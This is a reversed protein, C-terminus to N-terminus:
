TAHSDLGITVPGDNILHVKMEAGFRGAEVVLGHEALAARFRACLAEAREPPAAGSFSPRNGRRTDACLTFQSVVLVAGGAERISRNMKGAADAFIRLKAVKDAFAEAQEPTDGAEACFLVLLGPGIEGVTEAGVTVRAEGVRQLLLRM